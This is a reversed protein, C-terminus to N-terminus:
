KSKEADNLHRTIIPDNPSIKLAKEFVKIAQDYKKQKYLIFGKTDLFHPSRHNYDIAKEVLSLARDLHKGTEALIYAHLNHIPPYVIKQGNAKKITALARKKNKMLFQIFAIQFIIKSKLNEDKTKKLVLQYREIAKQLANIQLYADALAVTINNKGPYRQHVSELTKCLEQLSIGKNRLLIFTHVLSNDHPSKKLWDSMISLVEKNRKLSLLIEVKLLKAKVTSPGETSSSTKKLASNVHELAQPYNESKWELLAINFSHQASDDKIKKLEKAAQAFKGRSFLMQVLHKRIVCDDPSKELFERYYKEALDVKQMHELIHAKLLIGKDFDPFMSLSEDVAKIADSHRGIKLLIKAKLFLFMFRKKRSIKKALFDEINALAKELNNTREHHAALYYAIQENKPHDKQLKRLLEEAQSNKNTNLLSQAYILQIELDKSFLNETQDILRVIASFQNTQSLLRLYGEYIYPPAKLAFLINYLKLAKLYQKDNQLFLANLYHHGHQVLSATSTKMTSYLLTKEAHNNSFLIMIFFAGAVIKKM